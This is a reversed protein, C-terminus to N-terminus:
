AAVRSSSSSAQATLRALAHRLGGGGTGRIQSAREALLAQIGATHVFPDAVAHGDNISRAAVLRGDMRAGLVKGTPMPRSDREAVDRLEEADKENLMQITIESM